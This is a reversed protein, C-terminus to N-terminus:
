LTKIRKRSAADIFARVAQHDKRGPESEVGSSAEVGYPQVTDIAAAVNDPTLGGGLILPWFEERAEAVLQWPARHGTGGYAGSVKADILCAAPRCQRLYERGEDLDAPGAIRFARILKYRAAIANAVAAPEDGHLQVADLRVDAAVQLVEDAPSNVFVGVASVWAPLGAVIERARAVTVQRPSKAFILGIADAGADVATLADTANTIGCIKVRVRGM